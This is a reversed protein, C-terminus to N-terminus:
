LRKPYFKRSKPFNQKVKQTSASCLQNKTWLCDKSHPLSYMLWLLLFTNAKWSIKFKGHTFKVGLIPTFNVCHPTFSVNSWLKGGSRFKEHKKTNGHLVLCLSSWPVIVDDIRNESDPNRVRWLVTQESRWWFISFRFITRPVLNFIETGDLTLIKDQKTRGVEDETRECSFIKLEWRKRGRHSLPSEWTKNM